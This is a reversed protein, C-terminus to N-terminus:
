RLALQTLALQSPPNGSKGARAPSPIFLAAVLLGAAIAFCALALVKAGKQSLGEANTVHMTSREFMAGVSALRHSVRQGDVTLFKYGLVGAADLIQDM